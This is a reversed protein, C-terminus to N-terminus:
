HRFTALNKKLFNIQQPSLNVGSILGCDVPHMLNTLDCLNGDCTNNLLRFCYARDKSQNTKSAPWNLSGNNKAASVKVINEELNCFKTDTFGDETNSSDEDQYIDHGTSVTHRLGFFHGLEHVATIALQRAAVPRRIGLPFPNSLIVRSELDQDIDIVERPAFGLIQGKLGSALNGIQITDVMYLHANNSVRTGPLNVFNNDFVFVMNTDTPQVIEYTGNMTIGYQAYIKKMESFLNAAFLAKAQADPLSDLKRVFILRLNLTDKGIAANSVFSVHKISKSASNGDPVSLQALFFQATSKDSVLSFTEKGPTLTPPLNKYEGQPGNNFYFVVLRDETRDGQISFEYTKNPQMVLKVGNQVVGSKLSDAAASDNVYIRRSDIGSPKPQNDFFIEGCGTLFLAAFFVLCEFIPRIRFHFKM